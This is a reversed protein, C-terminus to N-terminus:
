EILVIQDCAKSLFETDHSVVAVTKGRSTEERLILALREM